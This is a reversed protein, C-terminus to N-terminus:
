YIPRDANCLGLLCLCWQGAMARVHMHEQLPVCKLWWDLWHLERAGPPPPLAQFKSFAVVFLGPVRSRLLQNWPSDLDLDQRSSPVVFDGQPPPTDPM